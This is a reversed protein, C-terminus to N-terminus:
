ASSKIKKSPPPPPPAFKIYLKTCTIYMYGLNANERSKTVNGLCRGIHNWAKTCMYPHHSVHLNSCKWGHLQSSFISTLCFYLHIYSHMCSLELIQLNTNYLTAWLSHLVQDSIEFFDPVLNTLANILLVNKKWCFSELILSNSSPTKIGSGNKQPLTM